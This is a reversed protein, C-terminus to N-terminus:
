NKSDLIRFGIGAEITPYNVRIKTKSIPITNLEYSFEISAFLNNHNYAISSKYLMYLPLKANIRRKNQNKEYSQLQFGGGMLLVNNFSFNNKIFSYGYGPAINISIVNGHRLYEVDRYNNIQSVPIITSDCNLSTYRPGISLIFSGGSKKLRESQEFAANISFKKSFIFNTNFGFTYYDIDKRQPNPMDSTWLVDFDKPKNLFFGKYGFYFVNFGIKRTQINVNINKYKTDGYKRKNEPSQPMKFSFSLKVFKFAFKFGAIGSINPRYKIKKGTNDNNLIVLESPQNLYFPRLAIVYKIKEINNEKKKDKKKNKIIELSDILNGCFSYNYFAIFLFIIFFKTYKM